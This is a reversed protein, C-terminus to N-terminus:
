RCNVTVCVALDLQETGHVDEGQIDGLIPYGGDRQAVDEMTKGRKNYFVESDLKFRREKLKFANGLDQADNMQSPM